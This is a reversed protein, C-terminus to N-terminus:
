KSAPKQAEYLYVISAGLTKYSANMFGCEFLDAVFDKGSPFSDVSYTYYKYAPLFGSIKAGIYPILQSYYKYLTNVIKFEPKGSELVVLSGGPKLV